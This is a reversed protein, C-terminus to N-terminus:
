EKGEKKLGYAEGEDLCMYKKNGGERERERRGERGEGGERGGERERDRDKIGEGMWRKYRGWGM